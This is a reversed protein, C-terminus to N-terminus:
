NKVLKAEEEDTLGNLSMAEKSLLNIKKIPLDWIADESPFSGDDAQLSASLVAVGVRINKAGSSVNAQWADGFKKELDVLLREYRRGSLETLKFTKGDIDIM